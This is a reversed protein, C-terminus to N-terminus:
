ETRSKGSTMDSVQKALRERLRQSFHEDLPTDRMWEDIRFAQRAQEFPLDTDILGYEYALRDSDGTLLLRLESPLNRGGLRRLHHTVNNMCNNTLLNYFEPHEELSHAREMMDLFIARMREPTTRAPYFRVPHKWIAGRKGVVDREDGIVYILQYQRFMSAIVRYPRGAVRRGEVSVAVYQGDSFGFCVFVHAVLDLGRLPVVLYYMSNILNMDYVRDYFGSTFDTATRWTFNRVNGVHVKDGVAEVHPMRAHDPSWDQDPDPTVFGFYWIAVIATVALSAISWRLQRWPIGPRGSVFLRERLASLYLAAIGLALLAAPWISTPVNFFVALAVWLGLLCWAFTCVVRWLIAMIKRIFQM